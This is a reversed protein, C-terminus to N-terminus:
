DHPNEPTLLVEALRHREADSLGAQKLTHRVGGADRVAQIFYRIASAEVGQGSLMYDHIVQEEPLGLLLGLAACFWGTRDKGVHCHVVTSGESNGAIARM